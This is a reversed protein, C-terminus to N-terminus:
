SLNDIQKKVFTDYIGAMTVSALAICVNEITVYTNGTILQVVFLFPIAGVGLIPWILFRKRNIKSNTNEKNTM